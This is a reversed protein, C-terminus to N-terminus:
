QNTKLLELSCNQEMGIINIEATTESFSFFSIKSDVPASSIIILGILLNASKSM